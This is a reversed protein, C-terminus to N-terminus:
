WQREGNCGNAIKLCLCFGERKKRMREGNVTNILSGWFAHYFPNISYYRCTVGKGGKGEGGREKEREEGKKIMSPCSISHNM